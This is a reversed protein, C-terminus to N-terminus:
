EDAKKKSPKKRSSGFPESLAWIFEFEEKVADYFDSGRRATIFPSRLTDRSTLYPVISATKETLMVQFNISKSEATRLECAECDLGEFVRRWSEQATEASQVASKFIDPSRMSPEFSPNKPDILLTRFGRSWTSARTNLAKLFDGNMTWGKLSVGM